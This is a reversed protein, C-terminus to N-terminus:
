PVLVNYIASAKHHLCNASLGKEVGPLYDFEIEAIYLLNSLTIVPLCTYKWKIDHIFINKYCKNNNM